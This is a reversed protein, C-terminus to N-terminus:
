RVSNVGALTGRLLLVDEGTKLYHFLARRVDAESPECKTFTGSSGCSLQATIRSAGSVTPEKVIQFGYVPNMRAPGFTSLIAPTATQLRMVSHNAIWVQARQWMAECAAAECAAEGAVPTLLLAKEFAPASRPACGVLGVASVILLPFLRRLMPLEGTLYAM